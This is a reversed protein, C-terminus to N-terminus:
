KSSYLKSFPFLIMSYFSMLEGTKELVGFDCSYYTEQMHVKLNHVKSFTLTLEYMWDCLNTRTDPAYQSTCADGVLPQAKYVKDYLM